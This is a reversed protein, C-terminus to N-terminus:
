AVRAYLDIGLARREVAKGDASQSGAATLPDGWFDQVHQVHKHDQSIRQILTDYYRHADAGLSRHARTLDVAFYFPIASM